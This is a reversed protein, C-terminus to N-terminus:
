SGCASPDSCSTATSFRTKARAQCAAPLWAGGSQALASIMRSRVKNAFSPGEGKPSVSRSRRWMVPRWSTAGLEVSKEALWLMRERDAIPVLLHVPPMPEVATISELTVHAVDKALRVLTGEARTGNGDLVAVREGVGLRRVRMHHAADEGLAVTAGPSLPEDAAFFAALSARDRREM